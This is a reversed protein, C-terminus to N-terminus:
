SMINPPRQVVPHGVVKPSSTGWVIDMVHPGCFIKAENKTTPINNKTSKLSGHSFFRLFFLRAFSCFLFCGSWKFTVDENKGHESVGIWSWGESPGEQLLFSTNKDPIRM